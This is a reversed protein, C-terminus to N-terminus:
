DFLGETDMGLEMMMHHFHDRIKIGGKRCVKRFVEFRASDFQVSSDRDSDYKEESVRPDLNLERLAPLASPDSLLSIFEDLEEPAIRYDLAFLDAFGNALTAPKIYLSSIDLVRLLPMASIIDDLHCDVIRMKDYEPVGWSFRKNYFNLVLSTLRPAWLQLPALLDQRTLGSGKLQFECISPAMNSIAELHSDDLLGCRWDFHQLQSCVGPIVPVPKRARVGGSKEEADEDDDWGSSDYDLTNMWVTVSRLEPWGQMMGIFERVNCFYDCPIDTLSTRNIEFVQLKTKSKLVDILEELEYGNWGWIRIERLNDCLKIAEALGKTEGRYMRFSGFDIARVRQALTPSEQLTELFIEVTEDLDDETGLYVHTYLANRAAELWQKSVLATEALEANAAFNLGSRRHTFQFIHALVAPPILATPSIALVSGSM